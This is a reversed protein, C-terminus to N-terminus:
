FSFRLGASLAVNHTTEGSLDFGIADQFDFKGVYDKAMLRLGMGRSLAIDAGVGVNGSVNTASTTVFSQTIEYRMAGMGAQVFPSFTTGALTTVPIGLQVGADYLLMSSQAVSVGGLFPVGFQVDSNTAAINGIMSLNPALKMGFQLGVVPAPANSLGTGLPGSLLNGFVMYGAYPTAEFLRNGVSVATGARRQAETSTSAGFLLVTALAASTFSVTRM